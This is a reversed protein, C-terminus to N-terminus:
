KGVEGISQQAFNRLEELDYFERTYAIQELAEKYKDILSLLTDIDIPVQDNIHKIEFVHLDLEKNSSVDASPSQYFNKLKKHRENRKRIDEIKM